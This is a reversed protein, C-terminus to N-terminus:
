EYNRRIRREKAGYDSTRLPEDHFGFHSLFMNTYDDKLKGNEILRWKKKKWDRDKM